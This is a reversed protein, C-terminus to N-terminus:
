AIVIHVTPLVRLKLESGRMAFLTNVILCTLKM